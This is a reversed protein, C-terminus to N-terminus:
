GEQKKELAKRAFYRGRETLGTKIIAQFFHGKDGKIAFFPNGYLEWGDNLKKNIEITLLTAQEAAVIDYEVSEDKNILVTDSPLKM